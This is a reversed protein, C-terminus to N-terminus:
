FGGRSPKFPIVVVTELAVPDGNKIAPRFKWKAFAAAAYTDLRDDVSQLVKVGNVSGDSHIVAYLTVTGQANHRMLELPYGPDATRIAVPSSLDGGVEDQKLQAFRIVWSGGSSNLNPVNINMRYFKRDGFVQRELPTPSDLAPQATPGPPTTSVRPPAISAMMTPSNATPQATGGPTAGTTAGKPAAGVHLGAPADSTKGTGAGAANAGSGNTPPNGRAGPNGEPTAAFNGRRNGSPIEAASNPALPRVNLAIVRGGGSEGGSAQMSPPPPVVGGGAALPGARAGVSREATPLQPAPAVVDSHGINLDGIRRINEANLQPAPAVVAAQPSQMVQRAAALTVEPAPAVVNQSLSQAQRDLPRNVEPTPAVVAETLSPAKRDATNRATAAMPVAQPTQSWAVINPLPVDRDLKVNPPAVVTQVHNDAQPPVSIIPQPSFEPDGKEAKQAPASGTDLRQLYEAPTYYVVQNHAVDPHDAIVHRDPFMQASGVLVAIVVVHGALSRSFGGWPMRTPVFIDPWPAAPYSLLHLPPLRPAWFFDRLNHLFAAPRPELDVLFAPAPVVPAAVSEELQL